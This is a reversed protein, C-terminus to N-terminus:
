APRHAYPMVEVVGRFLHEDNEIALRFEGDVASGRNELSGHTRRAPHAV